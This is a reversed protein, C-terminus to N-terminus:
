APVRGSSGTQMCGKPKQVQSVESLIINKLQICKGSFSLINNKKRASYFEM